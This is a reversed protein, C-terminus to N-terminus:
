VNHTIHVVLYAHKDKALYLKIAGLVLGHIPSVSSMSYCASNMYSILMFAHTSIGRVKTYYSNIGPLNFLWYQHHSINCILKIFGLLSTTIELHM